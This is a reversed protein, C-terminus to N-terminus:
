ESLLTSFHREVPQDNADKPCFILLSRSVESGTNEWRHPLHAEFLLSDGPSLQYVQGQITYTLCGDLCFVFELGTHVVPAAGSEAAPELHVLFPEAGTQALGSGLEELLGRDFKLRPRQSAKHFIVRHKPQEVEFFATIPADLAFALQQLTTVSPSTRANEIMSLTNVNLGSLEALSRLTLGREARLERLKQGIDVFGQGQETAREQMAQLFSRRQRRRPKGNQCASLNSKPKTM